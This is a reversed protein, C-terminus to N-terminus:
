GRSKKSSPAAAESAGYDAAADGLQDVDVRNAEKGILRVETAVIHRRRTTGRDCYNGNEFKNETSLHYSRVAQQYTRLAQVPVPEGTHRDFAQLAATRPDPDFPAVPAVTRKRPRGRGRPANAVEEPVSRLFTDEMFATLFNFPKVQHRYPKGENWPDFWGLQEPTTAGYRSLAPQQFNPHYDLVVRDPTGRLAADVIRYWLDRHWPPVGL